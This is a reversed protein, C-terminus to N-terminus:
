DLVIKVVGLNLSIDILREFSYNNQTQIHKNAKM